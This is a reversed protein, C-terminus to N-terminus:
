LSQSRGGCIKCSFLTGCEFFGTKGKQLTDSTMLAYQCYLCNIRSRFAILLVADFDESLHNRASPPKWRWKVTEFGTELNGGGVFVGTEALRQRTLVQGQAKTRNARFGKRKRQKRNQRRFYMVERSSTCTLLDATKRTKSCKLEVFLGASGSECLIVFVFSFGLL